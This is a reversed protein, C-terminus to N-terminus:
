AVVNNVVLVEGTSAAMGVITKDNLPLSHEEKKMEAGAAGTGEKLVANFGTEEVIFIAAHYFRFRDIILNVTRAFITNLDLISTVLKGIEASVALYENRRRIAEEAKKRETIDRAVWFVRNEDLKTLTAYFWFVQDQLPIEYEFQVKVNNELTEHVKSVFLDATNQPLLEHFTKGLMEIPPRVLLSPNTPAIQLYRGERNIVLVVDEMASFLARFNQESQEIQAFLRNKQVAASVQALITEIIRVEDNTITRDAENFAVGITGTVENDAILPLLLLNKTNRELLVDRVTAVLPNTAVDRIFVPKRTRLVEETSLNGQISIELGLQSPHEFTATTEAALVLATRSENMLAIGVNEANLLRVLNDTISQLTNQLELSSSVSAVVQNVISLEQARRQTEQFLRANELALSLQDTVQRILLQEDTSFARDKAEDVLRLTAWEEEGLQITTAYSATNESEHDAGLFEPPLALTGTNRRMTNVPTAAPKPAPAPELDTQLPPPVISPANQSVAQTRTADSTNQTPLTAAISNPSSDEIAPPAEQQVKPKVPKGKAHDEPQIDKFLNDLRKSTKQKKPM